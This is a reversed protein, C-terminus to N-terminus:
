AAAFNRVQQTLKKKDFKTPEGFRKGFKKTELIWDFVYDNQDEDYGFIIELREGPRSWCFSVIEDGPIVVPMHEAPVTEKISSWANKVLDLLRPAFPERNRNGQGLAQLRLQRIADDEYSLSDLNVPTFEHGCVAELFRKNADAVGEIITKNEISNSIDFFDARWYQAPPLDIQNATAFKYKAM